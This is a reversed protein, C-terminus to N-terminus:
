CLTTPMGHPGTDKVFEESKTNSHTCHRLFQTDQSTVPERTGQCSHSGCSLWNLQGMGSPM